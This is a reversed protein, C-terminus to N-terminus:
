SGNRDRFAAEVAYSTLTKPRLGEPARWERLHFRIQGEVPDGRGVTPPVAALMRTFALRLLEDAEALDAWQALAVATRDGLMGTHLVKQWMRVVYRRAGQEDRDALMLIMPWTGTLNAGEPEATLETLMQFVYIGTLTRTPDFLWSLVRNLVPIANQKEDVLILDALSDAIAQAIRRDDITTLRELASLARELDQPGLAVGWARAATAQGLPNARNGYWAGVAAEVLPRLRADEAPVSLANAVVDRLWYKEDIGMSHLVLRFVYDFSQKSLLGLATAAWIRVEESRNEALLRLWGLLESQIQFEAWVKELVAPAYDEAVYEMVEVPTDGFPGPMTTSRIRARLLRLMENRTAGFPDRWPPTKGDTGTRPGDLRQALRQAAHVVNEYPLGNLVALAIALCRSPVDPLGGFWIEFDETVQQAWRHELKPLDVTAGELLPVIMAALDAAAKMTTDVAFVRETFETLDPDALVRDAAVRSGSLSWALHAALIRTQAPPKPLDIIHKTLEPDTIPADVTVTLVLRDDTGELVKELKQLMWGTVKNWGLPECLLFGANPPLPRESGADKELLQCLDLLDVNRDLNFIRRDSPSQLLRIAAAVKGHGPAARLIAVRRTAADARIKGWDEPEVFAHRVPESMWAALGQLPIPKGDGLSLVFKDGGVMDGVVKVRAYRASDTRKRGARGDVETARPDASDVTTKVVTPDAGGASDAPAPQKSEPAPASKSEPTVSPAPASPTGPASTPTAAPTPAPPPTPTTM